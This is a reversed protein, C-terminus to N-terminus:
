IQKTFPFNRVNTEEQPKLSLYFPRSVQLMNEGKTSGQGEQRNGDWFRSLVNSLLSLVKSVFTQRTLAIIKGITRYLLSLQATFLASWQLVSSKSSYHQLLSKHSGQVVLLAFWDIRFSIFGSYANSPNIQLQLELVKAVQNFSGVWQFLGQHQSPNFAPPPHSSLPHSPQIADSIWHVRAQAFELLHYLIPFGLTRHDMTDWLAM